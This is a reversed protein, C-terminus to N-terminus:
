PRGSRPRAGRRAPVRPTPRARGRARPRAAAPGDVPATATGEDPGGTPGAERSWCRIRRIEDRPLGLSELFEQHAEPAGREFAQHWRDRGRQDLGVSELLKVWGQKTMLRSSRRTSARALLEVVVRQQKRLDDLERNLESLRAELAAPVPGGAADLLPAIRALPLGADRYRCIQALRTEDRESYVRYGNPARASPRLLGIRDYYLLATRSLGFRRALARITTM